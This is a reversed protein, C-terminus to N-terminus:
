KQSNKSFQSLLYIVWSISVLLATPVYYNAVYKYMNRKLTINLGAESHNWFKLVRYDPKVDFSYDLLNNEEVLQFKSMTLNIRKMNYGFSTFYIGCNHDDVPYSEFTMPCYTELLINTSMSLSNNGFYVVEKAKNLFHRHEVNELDWIMIDPLWLREHFSEELGAYKEVMNPSRILRPEHWKMIFWFSTKIISNKDSVKLVKFRHIEIDINNTENPNPLILRDYDSPICIKGSCKESSAASCEKMQLILFTLSLLLNIDFVTNKITYMIVKSLTEKRVLTVIVPFDYGLYISNSVM